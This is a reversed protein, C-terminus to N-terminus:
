LANNVINIIEGVLDAHRQEDAALKAFADKVKQQEVGPDGAIRGYLEHASLEFSRMTELEEIIKEKDHSNAKDMTESWLRL